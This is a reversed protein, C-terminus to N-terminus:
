ELRLSGPSVLEPKAFSFPVSPSSKGWVGYDAVCAMTYPGPILLAMDQWLSVTGDGNDKPISTVGDCEYGVVDAQPDATLHPDAMAVTATLIIALAIILKGM